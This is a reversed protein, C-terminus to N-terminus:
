LLERVEEPLLELSNIWEVIEKQLEKARQILEPPTKGERERSGGGLDIPDDFYKAIEYYGLFRAREGVTYGFKDRYCRSAGALIAIIYAELDNNYVAAWMEREFPRRDKIKINGYTKAFDKFLFEGMDDRTYLKETKGLPTRKNGVEKLLELFAKAEPSNRQEKWVIENFIFEGYSLKTKDEENM